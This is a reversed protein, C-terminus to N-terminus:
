RKIMGGRWYCFKDFVTLFDDAKELSKNSIGTLQNIIPTVSSYVPKVYSSFESLMNYNEDLMVAGFQIVEGNAGPVFSRQSASDNPLNRRFCLFGYSKSDTLNQAFIM